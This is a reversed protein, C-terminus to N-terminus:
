AKHRALASITSAFIVCVMMTYTDLLELITSPLESKNEKYAAYLYYKLPELDDISIKFDVRHSIKNRIKNMAKISPILEIYPEAVPFNSLLNIKQSFTLKCDEWSLNEYQVKLYEDIYHEIILHCSLFYGLEEYNISDLRQWTVSGKSIQGVLPPLGREKKM